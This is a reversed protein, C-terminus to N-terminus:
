EIAGERRRHRERKTAEVETHQIGEGDALRQRFVDTEARLERRESVGPQTTM